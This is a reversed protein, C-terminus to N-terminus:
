YIACGFRYWENYFRSLIQTSFIIHDVITIREGSGDAWKIYQRSASDHLMAWLKAVFTSVGCSDVLDHETLFDAANVENKAGVDATFECIMQDLVSEEENLVIVMGIGIQLFPDFLTPKTIPVPGFCLLRFFTICRRESYFSDRCCLCKGSGTVKSSVTKSM